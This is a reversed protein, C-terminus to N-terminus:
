DFFDVHDGSQYKDEELIRILKKASTEPKLMSDSKKMGEFANRINVHTGPDDLLDKIMQTDLPGPAYNLVKIDPEEVAMVKFLSDRAAKGSCYFGWTEFPQLAALSSINIVHKNKVDKFQKFVVSNLIMVSVINLNFYDQMASAQDFDLVKTGQNGLSGANHVVVLTDFDQDLDQVTSRLDEKSASNLDLQKLVVSCKNNMNLCMESTKQLGDLDRSILVLTPNNLQCMEVSIAQGLGRSAGTVLILAKGQNWMVFFEIVFRNQKM